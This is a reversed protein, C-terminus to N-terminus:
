CVALTHQNSWAGILGDLYSDYQSRGSNDAFRADNAADPQGIAVMLRRFISDSNGGIIVHKGDATPYTNSPTIGPMAAGARERIIGFFDYESLMSEMLAFVAEYLA